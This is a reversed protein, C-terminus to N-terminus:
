STQPKSTGPEESKVGPPAETKAIVPEDAKAADTAGAKAVPQEQPRATDGAETNAPMPEEAPQATDPEGAKATEVVGTKTAGPKLEFVNLERAKGKLKVALRRSPTLRSAVYMFTGPGILCTGGEAVGSLRSAVNVTDGIMTYELRQQSGINGVIVVGTNIGIGFQVPARFRGSTNIEDVAQLLELAAQAALWAHDDQPYPANWFAMMNDGIYKNIAGGHKLVIENMRELFLNLMTVVEGPPLGESLTTFGRVDAFLVTVEREEGGLELEGRDFSELIKQAIETSVYRSFLDNIQARRREEFLYNSTLTAVSVLGLVLAPFLVEVIQGGRTFELTAYVYYAGYSLVTVPFAVYWRLFPLIISAGFAFLVIILIEQRLPQRVLPIKLGRSQVTEPDAQYITEVVNAHIEVGFMKEGSTVIPTPFSDPEGAADLVGILVIKDRFVEAPVKGDIVDVYSYVPFTSAEDGVHSPQGFFYILMRGFDSTPLDRLVVYADPDAPDFYYRLQEHTFQVQAKPIRQFGLYTALGLAMLQTDNSQILLPIERVFGDSDPQANAHGLGSTAAKLAGTPGYIVDYASIEEAQQKVDTPKGGVAALIVDTGVCTGLPTPRCANRIAEVLTPDNDTPVDFLLDFTVVRAQAAALFDVLRAHVTRDWVAPSRGLRALSQNDLAIIVVKHSTPAPGYLYDKLGTRLGSFANYYLALGALGAVIGGILLGRVLRWRARQTNFIARKLIDWVRRGSERSSKFM